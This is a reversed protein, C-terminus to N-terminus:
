QDKIPSGTPTKALITKLKKFQADIENPEIGTGPSIKEQAVPSTLLEYFNRLNELVFLNRPQLAAAAIFDNATDRARLNRGASSYESYLRFMAALNRADSDYPVNEYATDFDETADIHSEAFQLVGKLQLAAAKTAPEEETQESRAYEAFAQEAAQIGALRQAQDEDSVRGAYRLFGMLGQIFGVEPMQQILNRQDARHALLYGDRGVGEIMTSARIQVWDGTRKIVTFALPGECYDCKRFRDLPLPSKPANLDPSSYIFAAREFSAAIADMTKLPLQEPPFSFEPGPVQGHFPKGDLEFGVSIPPASRENLLPKRYFKAFTQVYVDEDQQYLRGWVVLLRGGPDIGTLLERATLEPDCQLVTGTLLTIGWHDYSFARYLTELKMLLALQSGLGNLEHESPGSQFYPLIVVNIQADRFAVPSACAAIAGANARQACCAFILCVIAAEHVFRSANFM